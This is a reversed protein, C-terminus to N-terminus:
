GPVRDLFGHVSKVRGDADLVVVDFGLVPPEEGEPGLGWSFRAQNNHGDVAGVLSFTWGPFQGHAGTIFADLGEHGTVAAMPDVYSVDKTFVEALLEARRDTDTANFADLYKAAIAHFDYM